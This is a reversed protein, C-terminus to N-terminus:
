SAAVSYSLPVIVNESATIICWSGHTTSELFIYLARHLGPATNFKKGQACFGPVFLLVEYKM